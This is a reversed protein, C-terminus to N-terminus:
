HHLSSLTDENNHFFLPLRHKLFSLELHHSPVLRVSLLFISEELMSDLRTTFQTMSCALLRLIQCLAARHPFMILCAYTPLLLAALWSAPYAAQDDEDDEDDEKRITSCIM